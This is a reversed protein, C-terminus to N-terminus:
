EVKIADFRCVERCIGCRICKEPDIVHPQKKEGTIAEQPCQRKCLGCGTCNEAIVSYTILDKCVGAPCKQDKIHAEYEDRFYRLTTLVPNPATRGLACLAGNRTTRGLQELRQLDEEKGRGHTIEELINAMRKTGERCATCKGCSEDSNFNM